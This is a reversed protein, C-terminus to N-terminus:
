GDALEFRGKRTKDAGTFAGREHGFLESELLSESLAACNVALFPRGARTSAEHIARAVVEKGSGSEGSILVTGQSGAVAQVQQRVRAM